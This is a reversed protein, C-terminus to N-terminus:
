AAKEPPPQYLAFIVTVLCLVISVLYPRGEYWHFQKVFAGGTACVWVPFAISALAIQPYLPRQGGRSTAIWLYTPVLVWCVLFVGWLIPHDTQPQPIMGSIALYLGVIEAPIYKVLRGLYDEPAPASGTSDQVGAVELSRRTNIRRSM